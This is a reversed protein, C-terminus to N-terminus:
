WDGGEGCYCGDCDMCVNCGTCKASLHCGCIPNCDHESSWFAPGGGTGLARSRSYHETGHRDVYNSDYVIGVPDRKVEAAM